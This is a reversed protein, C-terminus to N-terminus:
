VYCLSFLTIASFVRLIFNKQPSKSLFYEIAYILISIRFLMVGVRVGDGNEIPLLPGVMLIFIIILDQNNLQFLEKRTLKISLMLFVGLLILTGNLLKDAFGDGYLQSFAYLTLVTASYSLIKASLIVRKPFLIGTFFAIILLLFVLPRLTAHYELTAISLIAWAIGICVLIVSAGYEYVWHLSRLIPNRREVFEPSPEEIRFKWQRRNCVYLFGLCSSTFAFYIGALIFADFFRFFYAISVLTIQLVYLIAVAEYHRFGFKMLQHHIHNKDPYFPSKGSYMRVTMVMLTDMIPLGLILVPLVPNIASGQYQSLYVALAASTFGIFQSGTDGMFVRAPHTNYRLFGMLSGMLAMCVTVVRGVEAEGALFAILGLSIFTVGAALGDLGDSLNIANSVGLLFVFLIIKITWDPMAFEFFHHKEYLGPTGILFVLIALIQGLFKWKYHLDFRDDLFGFVVIILSASLLPLLDFLAKYSYLLPIFVAIAISLGGSKPIIRTHIKRIGDPRDVLGLFNAYRMLVPILAISLFLSLPFNLINTM